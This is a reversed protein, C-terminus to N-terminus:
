KTLAINMKSNNIICRLSNAFIQAATIFNEIPLLKVFIVHNNEVAVDSRENRISKILIIAIEAREALMNERYYNKASIRYKGISVAFVSLFFTGLPFIFITITSLM